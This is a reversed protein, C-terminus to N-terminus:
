ETDKINLRKRIHKKIVLPGDGKPDFISPTVKQGALHWSIKQGGYISPLLGVGNCGLNYYLIPNLPEPGILRVGNPTFGMLGHWLFKYEIKDKRGHKYTYRLFSDIEDKAESPFPHEQNYNNTDDMLAEPGGICILNHTEKTETEYPRRTLYFYPDEEYIDSGHKFKKPLYSIEVPPKNLEETYGAMYGVIGRVLQHFKNNISKGSTNVININEFGNTCLVVEKATIKKTKSIDLVAHNDKLVLRRVPTHEALTFRDPYKTILYGVLEECFLASNMCGKREPLIAIYDEDDTELLASIDAKPLVTYLEKYMEPIDNLQKAEESVMLLSTSLGAKIRLANNRLHVLVEEITACAAYGTFQWMPTQLQAEERIEDLLSWASEMAQQGDAAMKIGFEQILSSFSREFYSALFGGNHGTAGHAIKDAEILTVKKDTNKLTYFATSVGAIGGGIIAVDTHHDGDLVAIPRTRNLQYLWPSHNVIMQHKNQYFIVPM